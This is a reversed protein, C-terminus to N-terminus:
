ISSVNDILAYTIEGAKIKEIFRKRQEYTLEIMTLGIKEKIDRFFQVTDFEKIVEIEIPDIM